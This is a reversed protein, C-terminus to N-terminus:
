EEVIVILRAIGSIYQSGATTQQVYTIIYDVPYVGPVATNVEGTVRLSYGTPLGDRLSIFDIGRVVGDLYSEADFSSGTELYTLYATLTLDLEYTEPFYVTVPLTLRATDGLSNTVRFEVQHSGIAGVSTDDMSTARIRHQITGDLPDKASIANLLDINSGQAYTLSHNLSFRPGHYDTYHATRIAKAVNGAQDFAAISVEITGSSDTMSIREVLLSDTVDGDRDDQATIGQCLDSRPASVSVQLVEESVSIQPPTKDSQLADWSRYGLFLAASLAMPVLLLLNKKNMSTHRKPPLRRFFAAPKKPSYPFLYGYYITTINGYIYLETLESLISLFNPSIDYQM